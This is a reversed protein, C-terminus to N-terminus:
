PLEYNDIIDTGSYGIDKEPESHVAHMYQVSMCVSFVWM